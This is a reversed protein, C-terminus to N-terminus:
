PRTYSFALSWSAASLEYKSASDNIVFLVGSVYRLEKYLWMLAM